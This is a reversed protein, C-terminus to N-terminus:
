STRTRESLQRRPAHKAGVRETPPAFRLSSLLGVILKSFILWDHSYALPRPHDAGNLGQADALLVLKGGVM